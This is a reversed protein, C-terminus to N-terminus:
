PLLFISILGLPIYWTWHPPYHSLHHGANVPPMKGPTHITIASTFDVKCYLLHPLYQQVWKVSLFSLSPSSLHQEWYTAPTPDLGTEEDYAREM